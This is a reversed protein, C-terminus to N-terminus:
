PRPRPPRGQGVTVAAGTAAALNGVLAPAQVDPTPSALQVRRSGGAPLQVMGLSTVQALHGGPSVQSIRVEQVLPGNGTGIGTLSAALVATIALAPVAAWVLTRRRRHGVVAFLM